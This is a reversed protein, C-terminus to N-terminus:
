VLRATLTGKEVGISRAVPECKARLVYVLRGHLKDQFESITEYYGMGKAIILYERNWFLEKFDEPAEDLNVGVYSGSPMIAFDAFLGSRRLDEETADNIIPESKPSIVVEKGMERLKKSVYEDFVAEGTNDTLYLVKDFTEVTKTIRPDYLLDNSLISDFTSAFNGHHFDHGKVGYEMTNAAAAIRMLAEIKNESADYYKEAMPLLSMAIENSSDKLDRYPDYTGSLERILRERMTGLVAPVVDPTLLPALTEMIKRLVKIKAEEEEFVLDCEFKAREYLCPVCESGVKM